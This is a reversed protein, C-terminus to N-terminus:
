ASTLFHTYRFVLPFPDARLAQLHSIGDTKHCGAANQLFLVRVLRPAYQFSHSKTHLIRLVKERLGPSKGTRVPLPCLIEHLHNFIRLYLHEKKGSSLDRCMKQREQIILANAPMGLQDAAEAVTRRDQIGNGASASQHGEIPLRDSGKRLMRLSGVIIQLGKPVSQNLFRHFVLGSGEPPSEAASLCFPSQRSSIKDIKGEQLIRGIILPIRFLPREKKQLIMLFEIFRRRDGPIQGTQLLVSNEIFDATQNKSMIRFLVTRNQVFNKEPDPM